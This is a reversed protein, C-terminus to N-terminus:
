NAHCSRVVPALNRDKERVPWSLHQAAWAEKTRVALECRSRDRDHRELLPHHSLINSWTCTIPAHGCSTAPRLNLRFGAARAAEYGGDHSRARMIECAGSSRPRHLAYPRPPLAPLGDSDDEPSSGCGLWPFSCCSLM